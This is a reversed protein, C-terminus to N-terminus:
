ILIRTSSSSRGNSLNRESVTKRSFNGTASTTTMTAVMKELRSPKGKKDNNSSRIKQLHPPNTRTSSLSLPLTPTHKKAPPKTMAIAITTNKTNGIRKNSIVPTKNWDHFSVTSTGAIPLSSPPAPPPLSNVAMSGVPLSMMRKPQGEFNPTSGGNDTTTVTATLPNKKAKNKNIAKLKSKKNAYLEFVRAEEPSSFQSLLNSSSSSSSTKIFSKQFQERPKSRTTRTTTTTTRVVTRGRSSPQKEMMAANLQSPLVSYINYIGGAATSSEDKISKPTTTTAPPIPPSSSSPIIRRTTALNNNDNNGMKGMLRAVISPPNILLAIDPSLGNTSSTTRTSITTSIRPAMGLRGDDVSELQTQVNFAVEVFNKILAFVDDGGNIISRRSALLDVM